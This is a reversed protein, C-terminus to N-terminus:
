QPVTPFYKEIEARYVTKFDQRQEEPLDKFKHDFGELNNLLEIRSSIHLDRIKQLYDEQLTAM